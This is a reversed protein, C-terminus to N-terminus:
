VFERAFGHRPTGKVVIARATRIMATLQPMEREAYCGWQGDRAIAGVAGRYRGIERM